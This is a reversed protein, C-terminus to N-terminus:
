AAGRIDGHVFNKDKKFYVFNFGSEKVIKAFEEIIINEPPIFDIAMGACHYSTPSSLDVWRNHAPCRYGSTFLIKKGGTKRIVTEYCEGLRSHYLTLTCSTNVCKCQFDKLQLNPTLDIQTDKKYIKIM